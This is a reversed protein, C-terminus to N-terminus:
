FGLSSMRLTFLPIKFVFIVIFLWTHNGYRCFQCTLSRKQASKKSCKPKHQFFIWNKPFLEDCGKCTIWSQAVKQDHCSRSHNLLEKLSDPEFSCYKCNLNCTTVHGALTKDDPYFRQCRSCSIWSSRIQSWHFKRMHNYKQEENAVRKPCLDCIYTSTVTTCNAKHAFFIKSRRPFMESCGSCKIWMKTIEKLHSERAHCLYEQVTDLESLCFDCSLDLCEHEALSSETPYLSECRSCQLWSQKIDDPHSKRAHTWLNSEIPFQADCFQCDFKASQCNAKHTFFSKGSKPFPLSCGTCTIWNADDIHTQRAHEVYEDMSNFLEHCFDCDWGQCEHTSREPYRAQCNSCTTMQHNRKVHAMKAPLNIFTAPCFECKHRKKMACKRCMDARPYYQQCTPCTQWEAKVQDHHLILSHEVLYDLCSFGEGCFECSQWDRLKEQCKEQHTDISKSPFHKRCWFCMPWTAKIEDEHAKRCHVLLARAKMVRPCFSCKEEM